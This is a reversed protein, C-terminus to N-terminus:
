GKTEGHVMHTNEKAKEELKSIREEPYLRSNSCYLLNKIKTIM